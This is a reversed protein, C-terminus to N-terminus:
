TVSQGRLARIVVGVVLVALLIWFLIQAISAAMGALGAVGLYGAVRALIFSHAGLKAHVLRREINPSAFSRTRNATHEWEASPVERQLM